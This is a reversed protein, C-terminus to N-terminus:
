RPDAAASLCAKARERARHLRQYVAPESTALRRAIETAPLNEVYRLTLIQRDADSLGHLGELGDRSGSEAPAAPFAATEADERLEVTRDGARASARAAMVIQNRAIREIWARFAWGGRREFGAVKRIVVRWTEQIVDDFDIIGRRFCRASRRVLGAVVQEYRDYLSGLAGVRGQRIEALAWETNRRTEM